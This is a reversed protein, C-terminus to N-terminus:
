RGVDYRCGEACTQLGCGLSGSVDLCGLVVDRAVVVIYMLASVTIYLFCFLSFGGGLSRYESLCSPLLHCSEHGGAGVLLGDFPLFGNAGFSRGM